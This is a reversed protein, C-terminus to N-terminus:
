EKRDVFRPAYNRIPRYADMARGGRELSGLLRRVEGSRDSLRRAIEAEAERISEIKGRVREVSALLPGLSPDEEGEREELRAWLSAAEEARRALKRVLAEKEELIPGLGELRPSALCALERGCLGLLHGFLALDEEARRSLDRVVAEATM